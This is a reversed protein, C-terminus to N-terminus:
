GERRMGENMWGTRHRHESSWESDSVCEISMSTSRSSSSSRSENEDMGAHWEVSTV